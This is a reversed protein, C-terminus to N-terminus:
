RSLLDPVEHPDLGRVVQQGVEEGGFLQGVLLVGGDAPEVLGDLLREDM